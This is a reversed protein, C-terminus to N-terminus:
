VTYCIRDRDFDISPKRNSYIAPKCDYHTASNMPIRVNDSRSSLRLEQSSNVLVNPKGFECNVNEEYQM